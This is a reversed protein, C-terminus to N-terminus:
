EIPVYISRKGSRYENVWQEFEPMVRAAEAEKELQYPHDPPNKDLYEVDIWPLFAAYFGAIECRVDSLCDDFGYTSPQALGGMRDLLEPRYAQCTGFSNRCKEIILWREGLKRPLAILRTPEGAPERPGAWQTLDRRKIAVLGLAPDKAFCEEMIDMWGVTDTCWDDDVKLCVEGPKRLAWGKNIGRATGINEPLTIVTAPPFDYGDLECLKLMEKTEPISGQDVLVLRHRNWDVTEGLSMLFQRTLPLRGNAETNWIASVLIAVFEGTIPRPTPRPEVSIAL